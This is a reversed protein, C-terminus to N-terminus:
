RRRQREKQRTREAAAEVARGIRDAPQGSKRRPSPVAPEAPDTLGDTETRGARCVTEDPDGCPTSADLREGFLEITQRDEDSAPETRNQKETTDMVPNRIKKRAVLAAIWLLVVSGIVASALSGLTGAPFIGALSAIWGGLASGVVGVILNILLWSPGGKVVLDAIWGAALGLLLYWLYYM